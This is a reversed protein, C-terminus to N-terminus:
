ADGSPTRARSRSPLSGSCRPSAFSSVVACTSAASIAASRGVGAAVRKSCGGELTEPAGEGSSREAREYAEIAAVIEAAREPTGAMAAMSARVLRDAEERMKRANQRDISIEEFMGAGEGAPPRLAPVQVAVVEVGSGARDLAGQIRERLSRV